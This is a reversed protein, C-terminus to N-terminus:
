RDAPYEALVREDPERARAETLVVDAHGGGIRALAWVAHARLLWDPHGALGALEAIATQEGSNGLAVILNRRLYRARRAPVYFHPYRELLKEDPLRVLGMLDVGAVPKSARLLRVGPPCAEICDDCGYIRDGMASRLEVPIVGPAQLWYALCRRADLVGPAVLAGTPCAPLCAVCSGCDRQMPASLELLADTVVSGLLMWPGAGPMLVMSNKGWWGVGARVAAARDVLRGDDRLVEARHGERRLRDAVAHLIADLDRYHDEVAFRAIRGTGPESRPSGAHPLYAKAVVFLRQAWPYTRTVDTAVEPRTYTFGLRARLGERTREGLARRVDAFPEVSCVGTGTAGHEAALRHLEPTVGELPTADDSPTPQSMVVRGVASSRQNCRRLSEAETGGPLRVTGAPLHGLRPEM